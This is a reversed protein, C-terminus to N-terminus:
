DSDYAGADDDAEDEDADDDDPGSGALDMISDLTDNLDDVQQQLDDITDLLESKTRPDNGGNGGPMRNGRGNTLQIKKRVAWSELGEDEAAHEEDGLYDRVFRVARDKKAQAQERTM